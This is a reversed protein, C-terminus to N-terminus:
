GRLRWRKCAPDRAAHLLAVVIVGDSEIRYYLCYPFREVLCRRANRYDAACAESFALLSEIASEIAGLFEDGRGSCQAEYWMRAAEIEVVADTLVWLKGSVIILRATPAQGRGM